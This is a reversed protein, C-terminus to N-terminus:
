KSRGNVINDFTELVENLELSGVECPNTTGVKFYIGIGGKENCDSVNRSSNDILTFQSTDSIFINKYKYMFYRIYNVKSTPGKESDLDIDFAALEMRLNNIEEESLGDKLITPYYPIPIFIINDKGFLKKIVRDKFFVEKKVNCHSGIITMGYHNSHSLARVQEESEKDIGRIIKRYPITGYVELKKQSMTKGYNKLVMDMMLDILEERNENPFDTKIMEDVESSVEKRIRLYAAVYRGITIKDEKKFSEQLVELLEDFNEDYLDSRIILKAIEKLSKRYRLMLKSDNRELLYKDKLSLLENIKDAHRKIEDDFSERSSEDLDDLQKNLEIIYEKTTRYDIKKLADAYEDDSTLDIVGDWDLVLIRDNFVKSLRDM